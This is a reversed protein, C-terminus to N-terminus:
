AVRREWYGIRQRQADFVEFRLVPNTGRPFIFSSSMASKINFNCEIESDHKAWYRGGVCDNNRENRSIIHEKTVCPLTGESTWGSRPAMCSSGTRENHLAWGVWTPDGSCAGTCLVVWDGGAVPLRVEQWIGRHDLTDGDVMRVIYAAEAIPTFRVTFYDAQVPQGGWEMTPVVQGHDIQAVEISLSDVPPPPTIPPLGWRGSFDYRGMYYESVRVNGFFPSEWDPTSGDPVYSMKSAGVVLDNQNGVTGGSYADEMVLSGNVHLRFGTDDGFEVAVQNLTGRVVPWQIQYSDDESQIRAEVSGNRLHVSLHGGTGFGSADRSWVGQM